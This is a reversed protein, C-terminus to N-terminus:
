QYKYRCHRIIIKKIHIWEGWCRLTRMANSVTFTNDLDLLFIILWLSCSPCPPFYGYQNLANSVGHERHGRHHVKLVFEKVAEYRKLVQDLFHYAICVRGNRSM